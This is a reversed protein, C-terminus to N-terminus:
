RLSSESADDGDPLHEPLTAYFAMARELDDIRVHDNLPGAHNEEGPGFGITPVEAVGMTYVGATSGTWCNLEPKKKFLSRYTKEASQILPHEENLVWAPFLKAMPVRLGTYSVEDYNCIEIKAKTGRTLARLQTLITKSTEHPLFRRDVLIRAVEPLRSAGNFESDIHTVAITAPGLFPDEPLDHHLGQIGDIVETIGYICNYGAEPTSAQSPRGRLTVQIEARGRQGRHIKMGTPASLVVFDPKKKEVDLLAKYALGDCACAQISGVVHITTNEALDLADIIGGAHVIAALGAKNRSAGHGFIKGARVEGMYPDFRWSSRDGVPATDLHADYFLKTDGDGIIGVVNGFRDIDVKTYGLDLMEKRVLEAVQAEEGSSSPTAILRRLFDSCSNKQKKAAALIRDRMVDM